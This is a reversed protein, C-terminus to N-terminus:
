SINGETDMTHVKEQQAHKATMKFEKHYGNVITVEVDPGATFNYPGQSIIELSCDSPDTTGGKARSTFLDASQAAQFDASSASGGDAGTIEAAWFNQCAKRADKLSTEAQYDFYVDRFPSTKPHALFGVIALAILIGILTGGDENGPLLKNDAM